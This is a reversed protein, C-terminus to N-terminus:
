AALLLGGGFSEALVDLPLNSSVVYDYFSKLGATYKELGATVFVLDLPNETAYGISLYVTGCGFTDFFTGWGWQLHGAFASILIRTDMVSLWSASEQKLSTSM